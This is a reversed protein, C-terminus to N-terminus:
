VLTCLSISKLFAEDPRQVIREQEDSLVWRGSARDPLIDYTRLDLRCVFTARNPPWFAITFPEKGIDFCIMPVVEGRTMSGGMYRLLPIKPDLLGTYGKRISPVLNPFALYNVWIYSTSYSVHGSKWTHQDVLDMTNRPWFWPCETEHVSDLRLRAKFGRGSVTAFAGDVQTRTTVESDPQHGALALELDRCVQPSFLPQYHQDKTPVIPTCYMMIDFQLKPSSAALNPFHLFKNLKVLDKGVIILNYGLENIMNVWEININLLACVSMYKFDEKCSGLPKGGLAKRLSMLDTPTAASFLGTRFDPICEILYELRMIVIVSSQQLEAILHLTFTRSAM